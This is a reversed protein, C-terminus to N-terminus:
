LNTSIIGESRLPSAFSELYRWRTDSLRLHGKMTLKGPEDSARSGLSTWGFPSRGTDIPVRLDRGGAKTLAVVDEDIDM